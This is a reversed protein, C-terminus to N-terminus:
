ARLELLAAGWTIGGGFATLMVRQGPRIRGDRWAEDLAIPITASSINGYRDVTVVLKERPLEMERAVAELIRLNAQHPVVWDLDAVTLGEAQLVDRAIGAMSRVAVRFTKKGNMRLVHRKAAVSEPSVPSVLSGAGPLVLDEGFAGASRIETRLLAFGPGGRRLLAAAAGDGWLICSKRSEWDLVRTMVEGSCLLITEVEPYAALYAHATRLGFLFGSCAATLDFAVARDAGIKSQLWCAASPCMTDPTITTVILVDLEGASVGTGELARLAAERCLDATTEGPAAVRRERIGTLERIYEDSTDLTRELESNTLVREPLHSGTSVLYM